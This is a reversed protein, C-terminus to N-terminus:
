PAAPAPQVDTATRGFAFKLVWESPVAQGDVQAPTFKWRRAAQLALNAFYKSPGPSDLKAGVVNGSTDVTVRVRVRVHGQITNRATRPVDPLSQEVVASRVSGVAPTQSVLPADPSSTNGQNHGAGPAVTHQEPEPQEKSPEAVASASRQVESHRRLLRPGAVIALLLLGASVAPIMYHWRASVKRPTVSDQKQPTAPSQRLSAAIEAITWRQLPDQRLCHGAIELFPAPLTGPVAPEKKETGDPIPSRQTLAEVLIMGIAWVDSAPSMEGGNRIEPSTCIGPRDPLRVPEGILGLGDSSIKVRDGVAMVNAPKLHGHVFGKSHVHAVADLVAQLMERTEVTTLPRHPLIQSLNEEAYEMVLYLIETDDLRCLGAEFVRILHPHSLKAALERRSLDAEPNAPNAPLLKIAAKQPEQGSRETLFVASHDCGGLYQRLQFKGNVVQGEWRKWAEAM